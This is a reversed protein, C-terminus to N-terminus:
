KFNLYAFEGYLLSVVKDHFKAAVKEYKSCVIHKTINKIKIRAIYCPDYYHYGDKCKKKPYVKYVGLYKSSGNKNAIRNQCNQQQNSYRLNNKKNNLGNHDKHDIQIKDGKNLGMIVRHIFTMNKKNKIGKKYGYIYGLCFYWNYKNILEFYEEDIFCEKIENKYKIKIIKM